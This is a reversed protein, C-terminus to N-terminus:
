VLKERVFRCNVEIHKTKEHFALSSAIHMAAQNDSILEMPQQHQNGLKDLLSKIWILECCTHWPEICEVSSRVLM